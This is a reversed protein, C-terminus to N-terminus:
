AGQFFIHISRGHEVIQRYNGVLDIIGIAETMRQPVVNFVLASAARYATALGTGAGGTHFSIDEMEKAVIGKGLYRLLARRDFSGYRDQVAVCLRRGDCAWSVDVARDEALVITDLRSTDAYLRDGFESVPANYFANTTFEDAITTWQEVIRRDVGLGAAFDRIEEFLGSRQSSDRLQRRHIPTGGGLYKEVGVIDHHLLKLVSLNLDEALLQNSRAILSGFQTAAVAAILWDRAIRESVLLVREALATPVQLLIESSCEDLDFIALDPAHEKLTALADLPDAVVEIEVGLGGLLKYTAQVAPSGAQALVRGLRPM